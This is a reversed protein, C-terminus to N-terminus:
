TQLTHTQASKPLFVDEEEQGAAPSSAKNDNLSVSWAGQMRGCVHRAVWSSSWCGHHQMVSPMEM